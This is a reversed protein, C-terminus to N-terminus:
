PRYNRGGHAMSDSPDAQNTPPQQTAQSNVFTNRLIAEEAELENSVSIGAVRRGSADRFSYEGFNSSLPGLGIAKLRIEYEQM